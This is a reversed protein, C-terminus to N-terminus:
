ISEDIRLKAAGCNSLNLDSGGSGIMRKTKGVCLSLLRLSAERMKCIGASQRFFEVRLPFGHMEKKALQFNMAELRVEVESADLALGKGPLEVQGIGRGLLVGEDPEAPRVRHLLGAGQLELQVTKQGPILKGSSPRKM